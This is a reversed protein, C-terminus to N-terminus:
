ITNRIFYERGVIVLRQSHELITAIAPEKARLSARFEREDMVVPSVEIGLLASLQRCMSPLTKGSEKKSRVVFLLDMDRGREAGRAYSGFLVCSLVGNSDASIFQQLSNSLLKVSRNASCASGLRWDEIMCALEVYERDKPNIGLTITKGARTKELLPDLAKLTKQLSYPHIGLERSMQMLHTGKSEFIFRLAELKNKTVPMVREIM